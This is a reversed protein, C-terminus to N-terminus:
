PTFFVIAKVRQYSGEREKDEELCKFAVLKSDPTFTPQVLFEEDRPKDDSAQKRKLITGDLKMFFVDKFLALVMHKGDPAIALEGPDEGDRGAAGEPLKLAMDKVISGDPRIFLLRPGQKRVLLVLTRSDTWTVESESVHEALEPGLRRYTALTGDTRVFAIVREQVVGITKGDPSLAAVAAPAALIRQKGESPNIGMVVDALCLYVWKGEAEYQPRTTLYALGLRDSEYKRFPAELLTRSVVEDSKADRVVLVVPVLWGERIDRLFRDLDSISPLSVHDRPGKLPTAELKRGIDLKYPGERRGAVDEKPQVEKQKEEMHKKAEPTLLPIRLYCYQKGDPRYAPATLMNESTEEVIRLNKKDSLVMLRYIRTGALSADDEGEGYPEMTVFALDKGSPSFAMPSEICALVHWLLAGGAVAVALGAKWGYGKVGMVQRVM